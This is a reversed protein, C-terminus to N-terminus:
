PIQPSASDGTLRFVAVTGDDFAFQFRPDNLAYRFLAAHRKQELVLFKAHFDRTLVLYTDEGNAPGCVPDSCTFSSFRGTYLHHAKWYLAPSYAYQFIPDMGGVYHNKTNWFFLDPFLDWHAHFVIDGPASNDLLWEDAQKLRQPSYTMRPMVRVYDSGASVLMFALLAGGIALLGRGQFPTWPEVGAEMSPAILWTYAGAAFMVTFVSFLDAARLSFGIMMVLAAGSLAFSSWLFTRRRPALGTGNTTAVTMAIALLVWVIIGPLFHRAFDSAGRQALAQLGSTLDGGFLLPVGKHKEMALQVIQTYVLKAAGIPNPRLVWGAAMGALAALAERWAPRGEVIWRVFAVVGIVLPVVWFFGLHVWAIAFSVLGVGLLSGEAACALLLAALGISIVHPRTMLLRYLLYPAFTLAMLPWVPALRARVLRAAVYVLILMAALDFAGALKVGRVPDPDLTFPTLLLHFGYWIDAGLKSVMSCQTWPFESMLPGRERYLAAHRFHYLADRDPIGPLALHLYAALAVAVLAFLLFGFARRIRGGEPATM